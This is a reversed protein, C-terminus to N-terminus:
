VGLLLYHILSLYRTRVTHVEPPVQQSKGHHYRRGLYPGSLLVGPHGRGAVGARCVRAYNTVHCLCPCNCNRGDFM